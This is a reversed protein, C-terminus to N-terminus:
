VSKVLGSPSPHALCLARVEERVAAPEAQERCVAVIWEAIRIMEPEKMGRSTAPPTGLRVGSPKFPPLPDDPIANKNLTIGASELREQAEQGNLGFSQVTELVMLHNDTGNTILKCGREMLSGALIKANKLVQAAYTQFEPRAAEGLAVAIAMVKNM